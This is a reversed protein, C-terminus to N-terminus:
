ASFLPRLRDLAWGITTTPSHGLACLFEVAASGRSSGIVAGAVRLHLLAALRPREDFSAGSEKSLARYLDWFARRSGPSIGERFAALTGSESSEPPRGFNREFARDAVRRAEAFATSRGAKSLSTSLHRYRIARFPLNAVRGGGAILRDWLDYDQAIRYGEDYGGLARAAGTRFLVATHLFPNLLPLLWNIGEESLPVDLLGRVRSNEDVIWGCTGLLDLEHLRAFLVQRELRLRHSVDDADQRAIWQGRAVALGQNLCPTQGKNAANEILRVRTDRSAIERLVDLSGDTSADDVIVLEFARFTQDLISRVSERLFPGANFVTMLVTVEPDRASM